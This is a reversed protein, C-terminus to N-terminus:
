SGMNSLKKLVAEKYTRGIPITKIKGNTLNMVIDSSKIEEAYNISIIFSKHVRIFDENNILISEIYNMTKYYTRKVNREYIHICNRESEIYMINEYNIKIKVGDLEIFFYEKHFNRNSSQPDRWAEILRDMSMKFRIFGIPKILFDIVGKEYGSLAYKHYGTTFIFKPINKGKKSRLSEIFDLGNLNPMEIDLFVLDIQNKELFELGELSDTFVAILKLQSFKKLHDQIVGVAEKQDDIITCTIM